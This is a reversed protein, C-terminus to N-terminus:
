SPQKKRELSAVEQLHNMTFGVIVMGYRVEHNELHSIPVHGSATIPGPM